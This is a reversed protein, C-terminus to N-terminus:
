STWLFFHKVSFLILISHILAADHKFGTVAFFCSNMQMQLHVPSCSMYKELIQLVGLKLEHVYTSFLFVGSNKLVTCAVDTDKRLYKDQLM